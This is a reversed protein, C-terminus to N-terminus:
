IGGALAWSARTTTDVVEFIALAGKQLLSENEVAKTHDCQL